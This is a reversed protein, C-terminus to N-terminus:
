LPEMLVPSTSMYYRGEPAGSKVHALLRSSWVPVVALVSRSERNLRAASCSVSSRDDTVLRSIPASDATATTLAVRFTV